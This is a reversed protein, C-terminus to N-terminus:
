DRLWRALVRSATVAGVAAVVFFAVGKARRGVTRRVDATEARLRDLALALQEREAGIDRRVAEPSRDAM